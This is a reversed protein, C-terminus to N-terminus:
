LVSGLIEIAEDVHKEEIVLPPLFRLVKGATCNVLLGRELARLVTEKCDESLELGLMLGRGKVKGKGLSRLREKMYEGVRVVNPLLKKVEDVVASACACALPNGGFTSGHSGPTFSEAVEETAIIAGIPVGGGLGKALTIIHPKLPTQEYAYFSGTRGIGTQVEDVIILLEKEQALNQLESLFEESAENVGGEGQIVELIVGATNEDVLKRVSDVDNLRAYSFGPLLPEFGKHLKEQGTASLSGYTRGHFSREFAIFKWRDKGKDRWYKRALKLAGEVSETGSNCFFVRANTHFESVLKRAVEEQWPNEYLNSVHILRKAQSTLAGVLAPHNHGLANVGVGAIFDLYRKGNEDYLYVGEGRVFRVPLREYTRMLYSM